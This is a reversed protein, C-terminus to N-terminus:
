KSLRGFQQRQKAGVCACYLVLGTLSTEQSALYQRVSGSRHLVWSPLFTIQIFRSVFQQHRANTLKLPLFCNEKASIPASVTTPPMSDQLGLIFGRCRSHVMTSAQTQKNTKTVTKRESGSYAGLSQFYKQEKVQSPSVKKDGFCGM